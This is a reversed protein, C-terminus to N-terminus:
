QLKAKLGENIASLFDETRLSHERSLKDSHIMLALDKTMKDGIIEINPNTVNIKDM